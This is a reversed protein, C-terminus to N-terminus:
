LAQLENGWCVGYAPFLAGLKLSFNSAKGNIYPHNQFYALKPCQIKVPYM